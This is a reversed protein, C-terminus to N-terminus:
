DLKVMYYYLGQYNPYIGGLQFEKEGSAVLKELELMSTIDQDNVQTIVFTKKMKTQKGILGTPKIDTIYLGGKVRLAQSENKTLERMTLGLLTVADKKVIDTNGFRNKFNIITTNEKGNRLYTITTNDGPRFQAIQETMEPGTKIAKNGIRTIFDGEKIGASEAASGDYVQNVYVGEIKDLKLASMQEPTASKSDVYGVGLYARQVNGYKIMDTVVKKVINSPIAFSYGAYSGTPSAIASNIGILEGRSNVLAGGSNGPNVAADTQIFSEIANNGSKSQNIGINRYKASVIGATVTTELTLPYGVALVWQGLKVDESNGYPITPLNTESIKLVALDTSPDNGIVKASYSKKNNLIVTVMDAGDVVHNNTVIYGDNSVIVGSGSSQQPQQYYQGGGFFQDFFNDGFPSRYQVARAKTETKIHVVARSSREAADELNVYGGDPGAIPETYNAFHVDSNETASNPFVLTPYFYKKAVAMTVMSTAFAVLIVTLIKKM